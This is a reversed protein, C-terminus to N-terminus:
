TLHLYKSVTEMGLRATEAVSYGFGIGCAIGATLSDGAGNQSSVTLVRPRLYGKTESDAYYLGDKGLSIFVNRVGSALLSDACDEPTDRGTMTRAELLNPKIAALRPLLPLIRKAKEASVPDCVLPPVASESLYLLSKEPLNADIVCVDSANVSPLMQDLIDGTFADMLRMDNVACLMDGDTDHLAMYVSSPGALQVSGDIRLGEELCAQRLWEANHDNGFVTYLSVNAGTRVAQAAINHGVGGCSFRVHGILSDKPQFAGSPQGIVDLNVGGVVAINLWSM